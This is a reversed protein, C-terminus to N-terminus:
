KWKGIVIYSTNIQESAGGGNNWYDIGFSTATRNSSQVSVDAWYAGSVFKTIMVDYDNNIFSHAFVVNSTVGNISPVSAVSNKGRCILTGDAFKTYHGNSNSGSEIIGAVDTTQQNAWLNQLRTDENSDYTLNGDVIKYANINANESWEALTEYGTPIAGTYETCTKGNCEIECSFSITEIYGLDNLIYRM